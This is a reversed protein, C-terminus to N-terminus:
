ATQLQEIKRKGLTWRKGKSLLVYRTADISHDSQGDDPVDLIVNKKNRKYRYNDFEKYTFDKDRQDSISDVIHINYDHFHRISVEISTKSVSVINFGAKRLESVARPDESEAIILHRKDIKKRELVDVLNITQEGKSNISLRTDYVIEQIYLDDVLLGPRIWMRLFATPSPYFGFDLASPIEIADEPVRSARKIFPMIREDLMIGDQGEGYVKWWYAWYPFLKSKKKALIFDDIQNRTLNDINDLWTSHILRTKPDELIKETQLWWEGSPNYDMIVMETTRIKLDNYQSHTIGRNPENLYLIDRGPGIAKAGDKDLSFYNILSNNIQFEHDSKNHERRIHERQMYKKYEYIAGERLHPFSQSVISMKRHRASFNGVFDLFMISDVTKGSRGSGKLVVDRCKDKYAQM